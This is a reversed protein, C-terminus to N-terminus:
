QPATEKKAPTPAQGIREMAEGFRRQPLQEPKCLFAAEFKEESINKFEMAAHLKKLDAAGIVGVPQGSADVDEGLITLDFIMCKLYRRGFSISAGSGQAASMVGGGKAGTTASGIDAFYRRTHGGRHSVDCIIRYHDDIPSDSMGYSLVFGHKRAVPDVQQSVTELRAYRTKSHAGAADKVIRPMEAQAELMAENFAQEALRKREDEIMGRLETVMERATEPKALAAKMAGNIIDIISSQGKMPVLEGKVQPEDVAQRQKTAIRKAAKEPEQFLPEQKATTM